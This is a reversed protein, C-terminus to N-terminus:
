PTSQLCEVSKPAGTSRPTAKPLLFHRARKAAAQPIALWDYAGALKARLLAADDADNMPLRKLALPTDGARARGVETTVCSRYGLRTLTQQFSVVFQVNAQPFAYPYAFSSVRGGLRNEIAAKSERLEFEIQPETLEVLKPHSATHSGIEIGAAHLERVEGWSLCDRSQFQRPRDAIYSTALFMTAAFGHQRLIPFAATHFDRFGDDFTIAVPKAQTAPSGSDLWTLGAELSVGRCGDEALWRMQQEFRQPTTCVKYYASRGPEPDDSISHYMLIPLRPETSRRLRLLPHVIGLTM